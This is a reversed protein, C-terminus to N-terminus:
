TVSGSLVGFILSSKVLFFNCHNCFTFYWIKFIHFKKINCYQFNSCIQFSLHDYTLLFIFGPVKINLYLPGSISNSFIVCLFYSDASTFSWKLFCPLHVCISLCLTLYAISRCDGFVEGEAGAGRVHKGRVERLIFSDKFSSKSFFKFIFIFGSKPKSNSCHGYM